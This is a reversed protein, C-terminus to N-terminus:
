AGTVTISVAPQALEAAEVFLGARRAAAAALNVVAGAAPETGPETAKQLQGFFSDAAAGVVVESSGEAPVAEWVLISTNAKWRSLSTSVTTWPRWTGLQGLVDGLEAIGPRSATPEALKVLADAGGQGAAAGQDPPVPSTLSCDFGLAVQEGDHLAHFVEDFLEASSTGSSADPRDDDHRRGAWRMPGGPRSGTEVAIVLVQYRRIRTTSCAPRAVVYRGWRQHRYAPLEAPAPARHPWRKRLEWALGGSALEAHTMAYLTRVQRSAFRWRGDLRVYEDAYRFSTVVTNRDSAQESFGLVEGRAHDDDLFELVFGRAEHLTIPYVEGLARYNAVIAERGAHTSGPSGFRADPAFLEGLAEFEHDDILFAYRALLEAIEARAELRAIRREVSEEAM